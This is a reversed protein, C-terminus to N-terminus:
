LLKRIAEDLEEETMRGPQYLRVIGDRDLLVHMPISTVGYEKYNAESVPVPEDRLFGYHTDWIKMNRVIFPHKVDPGVKNVGEGLNFGYLGRSSHVENDEFRVFPLTRIDVMKKSGDPQQVKFTLKLSHPGCVKAWNIRLIM